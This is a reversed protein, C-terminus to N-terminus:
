CERRVPGSRVFERTASSHSRRPHFTPPVNVSIPTLPPLFAAWLEVLKEGVAALTYVVHDDDIPVVPERPADAMQHVRESLEVGESDLKTDTCSPTSVDVGFPRSTKPM